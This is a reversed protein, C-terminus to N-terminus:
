FFYVAVGLTARAAADPIGNLETSDSGRRIVFTPHALPLDGDIRAFIAWRPSLHATALASGSLAFVHAEVPTSPTFPSTGAASPVWMENLEVGLCPGLDFPGLAASACARGAASALWFTASEGSRTGAVQEPAFLDVSALARVWWAPLHLAWGISLEAGPTASPLWQGAVSAGLSLEAESRARDATPEPHPATFRAESATPAPLAARLHQPTPQVSTADPGVAKSRLTAGRDAGDGDRAAASGPDMAVGVILATTQAIAECTAAEFTRTTQAGETRLILDARWRAGEAQTVVVRVDVPAPDTRGTLIRGVEGLVADHPPCGVPAEWTLTL